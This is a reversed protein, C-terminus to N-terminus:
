KMQLYSKAYLFVGATWGMMEPTKYESGVVVQGSQADYKEWLSGTNEYNGAIMSVYKEAIRAAEAPLQIKHLAEIAVLTIPAWVKGFGWQYNGETPMTATVGYPLELWHLLHLAGTQETKIGVWYPWFSAASLVKSRCNSVYNYDYMIGTEPDEMVKMREARLQAKVGWGTKDKKLRESFTALLTEYRYLLSNLDVPNHQTCYGGFRPNFDWGSEAEAVYDRGAEDADRSLDLEIRKAIRGLFERHYEESYDSGYCNLGNPAIRKTMWFDYELCVVEYMEALWVDDCLVEYLDAVMLAFYPPQSRGIYYTRSGNPMYGYTRILHAINECNDKALEIRDSLILGKNTFYTDWYYMENFAGKICPVTFPRPLALLSGQEVPQFRVTKDWHEFIYKEIREYKDM